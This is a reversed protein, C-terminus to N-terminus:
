MCVRERRERRERACMCVCVRIIEREKGNIGDKKVDEKGEREGVLM